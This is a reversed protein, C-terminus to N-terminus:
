SNTDILPPSFPLYLLFPGPLYFTFSPSCSLHFSSSISLHVSGLSPPISPHLSPPLYLLHLCLRVCPPIYAHPLPRLREPKFSGTMPGKMPSHVPPSTVHVMHGLCAMAVRHHIVGNCEKVGERERGEALNTKRERM